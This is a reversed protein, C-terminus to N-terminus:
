IQDIGQDVISDVRQGARCTAVVKSNTWVTWVTVDVGFTVLEYPPTLRPLEHFVPILSFGFLSM